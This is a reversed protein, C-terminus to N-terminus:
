VTRKKRISAKYAANRRRACQRCVREGRAGVRTNEDTFEHGDVCHTKASQVHRGHRVVDAINEGHTGWRLNSVRADARDGNDHLAEMGLPRPGVFAELVLVHVNARRKEPTRYLTVYPYGNGAGIHAKLVRGRRLGHSYRDLSRVQGLSSVEYADEFGVVPLWHAM